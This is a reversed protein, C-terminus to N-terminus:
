HHAHEEKAQGIFVASLMTFVYAQIFIVMCEILYIFVAMAISVPAVGYGAVAGFKGGFIFILGVFNLIILHGATMNAFLRVALAFPKIFLGLIEVPVLLVKVFGPVGPPNILHMWYDKTGGVQVVIFTFIALVATIAINSTATAGFPIMGLINCFLITFFISLLYPMYKDVHKAPINPKAVEDRIFLVVIEIANQLFGKPASTRGIGKKYKAALNLMVFLLLGVGLVLFLLHRTPSLDIAIAGAVPQLKSHLYHHQDALHEGHLVEGNKKDVAHFLGSALAAQTSGYASVAYQGDEGKTVLLRPLEVLAMPSFDLYNGDAAHSMADFPEGEAAAQLPLSFVFLGFLILTLFRLQM